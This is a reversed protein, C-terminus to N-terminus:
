SDKHGLSKWRRQISHNKESYQLTYVPVIRSQKRNGLEEEFIVIEICVRRTAAPKVNARSIIIFAM